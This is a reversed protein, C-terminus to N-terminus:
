VCFLVKFINEIVGCECIKEITETIKEYKLNQDFMAPIGDCMRVFYLSVCELMAKALESQSEYRLLNVLMPIIPMIHTQFEGECVIHYKSM